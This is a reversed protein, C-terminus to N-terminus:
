VEDRSRLTDAESGGEYAEDGQLAYQQLHEMSVFELAKEHCGDLYVPPAVGSYTAALASDDTCVLHHRGHQDSAHTKISQHPCEHLCFIRVLM